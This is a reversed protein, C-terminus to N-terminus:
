ARSGSAVSARAAVESVAEEVWPGDGLVVAPQTRSGAEIELLAAEAGAAPPIPVVGRDLFQRRVQETVMGSQDWPGWNV